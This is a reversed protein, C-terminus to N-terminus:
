ETLATYLLFDRNNVLAMVCATRIFTNDIYLLYHVTVVPALLYHVTVMPALLYHVTVVPAEVTLESLSSLHIDHIFYPPVFYCCAEIFYPTVIHVPSVQNVIPFLPPRKQIHYHLELDLLV